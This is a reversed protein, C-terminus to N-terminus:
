SFAEKGKEWMARRQGAEYCAVGLGLLCLLFPIETWSLRRRHNMVRFIHFREANNLPRFSTARRIRENSGGRILMKHYYDWVSSVELHRVCVDPVYCVAECSLSDVVRHVFLTDGGRAIEPFAGLKDFLVKRVAMNNTYGYYIENVDSSLVYTAKDSEYAALLDMAHSDAGYQRSGLVIGVQPDNMAANIQELWDACPECDPDTFAIISSKSVTIGRNRAAYAGQKRESLLNIGPYQQVVETSNDSSNNDVMIVQYRHRPYTQSLLAEACQAIHQVANYFPVV